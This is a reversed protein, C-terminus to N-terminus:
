VRCTLTRQNGLRSRRDSIRYVQANDLSAQRAAERRINMLSEEQGLKVLALVSGGRRDGTLKAGLAGKVLDFVGTYPLPSVRQSCSEQYLVKCNAHRNSLQGVVPKDSAQIFAVAIVDVATSNTAFDVELADSPNGLINICAPIKPELPM